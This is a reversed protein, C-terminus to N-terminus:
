NSDTGGTRANERMKEVIHRSKEEIHRRKEELKDGMRKGFDMMKTRRSIRKPKEDEEASLKSRDDVTVVSRTSPVWPIDTNSRIFNRETEATLLPTKLQTSTSDHSSQRTFASGTQGVGSTSPAPLSQQVPQEVHIVDKVKEDHEELSACNKNSGDLKLKEERAQHESLETGTMDVNDHNIWIFPAVKRPVWDDKEALMWPITISECNPLVLTDRIAAQLTVISLYCYRRLTCTQM